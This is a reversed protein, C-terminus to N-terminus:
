TSSGKTGKFVGFAYWFATYWPIAAVNGRAIQYLGSGLLAVFALDWLDAGGSTLSRIRNNMDSLSSAVQTHMSTPSQNPERVVFLNHERTYEAISGLDLNHILLVSGTIPNVECTVIGQCQTLESYLQSFYPADGKRAPIRV